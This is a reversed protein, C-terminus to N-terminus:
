RRRSSRQGGRRLCVGHGCPRHFCLAAEAGNLLNRLGILDGCTCGTLTLEPFVLVKVGQAQAARISEIVREANYAPDAVRIVPSAAAAKVFGDKM